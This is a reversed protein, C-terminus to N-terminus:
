YGQDTATLTYSNDKADVEIEYGYYGEQELQRKAAHVGYANLLSAVAAAEREEATTPVKCTSPNGIQRQLHGAWSDFVPAYSGDKQKSFGVDYPSNDLRLVYDCIGYQNNYYMRPKADKILSAKLGRQKLFEVAEELAAIDDIKITKLTTTHSM